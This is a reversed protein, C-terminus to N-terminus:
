WVSMRSLLYGELYTKFKGGGLCQSWEDLRKGSVLRSVWSRAKGKGGEGGIEAQVRVRRMKSREM